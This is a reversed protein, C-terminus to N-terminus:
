SARGRHRAPIAGIWLLPKRRKVIEDRTGRLLRANDDGGTKTSSFLEAHTLPRVRHDVRIFFQLAKDKKLAFPPGARVDGVGIWLLTTSEVERTEIQVEDTLPPEITEILHNLLDVKAREPDAINEAATAVGHQESLGIWIEGGGANLMAVVERSITFPNKLADASKFELTQSERKGIPVEVRKKM